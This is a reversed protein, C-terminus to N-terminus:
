AFKTAPLVTGTVKTGQINLWAGTRKSHIILRRHTTNLYGVFVKLKADNTDDWNKHGDRREERLTLLCDANSFM